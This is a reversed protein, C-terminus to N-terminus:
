RISHRRTNPLSVCIWRVLIFISHLVTSIAANLNIAGPYRSQRRVKERSVAELLFITLPSDISLASLDNFTIESGILGM